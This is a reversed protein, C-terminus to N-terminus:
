TEEMQNLIQRVMTLIKFVSSRYEPSIQLHNPHIVPVVIVEQDIDLDFASKDLVTRYIMGHVKLVGPHSAGYMWKMADNGMLLIVKVRNIYYMEFRKYFLCRCVSEFDPPRNGKTHCNVCNLLSVESKSVGMYELYKDFIHGPMTEEHVIQNKLAESKSPSRGVCLVKPNRTLIPMCHSYETEFGVKCLKCTLYCKNLLARYQRCIVENELNIDLLSSVEFKSCLWKEFSGEIGKNRIVRSENVEPTLQKEEGEISLNFLNMEM